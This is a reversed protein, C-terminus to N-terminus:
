RKEVVRLKASRARPNENLEQEGPIIPKRTVLKIQSTKGCVCIPFDKPCECPDFLKKFTQKVIRDELSHFTIVALRAGSSLAEVYDELAQGLGALEGNVEIRIAQFSRKAPHPGERRAAAPIANKIIQTLEETTGIEQQSRAEVIFKAIRAAWKEEGYERLIRTLENQSYENVVTKASLTSDRNMRMDLPADQQYSFGRGGEDLQYSSVGLDLVAGDIKEIGNTKLVEMISKFDDHVFLINDEFQELRKKCREIAATDKDIGILRGDPLIRELIGQAHGGGGMTGDAVTQGNKLNLADITEQYLVPVHGGQRTM